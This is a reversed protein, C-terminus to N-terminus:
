LVDSEMERILIYSKAIKLMDSIEPENPFPSAVPAGASGWLSRLDVKKNVLSKFFTFQYFFMSLITGNQNM